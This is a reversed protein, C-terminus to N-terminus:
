IKSMRTAADLHLVTGNLYGNGIVEMCLSAFEEGKGLRTPFVAQSELQKLTKSPLKTAMPTAFLSPAIGVVRIGDRSLDRAMPLALSAVGAKSSAYATQGTQGQNYSNSSVLIIVGKDEEDAPLSKEQLVIASAVQASVNFTGTLNVDLIQRFADLSFVSGDRNVIKGAIGFGACNIVGGIRKKPWHKQAREIIAKIAEEDRVDAQAFFLNPKFRKVLEEGVEENVDLVAVLAGKEVLSQVCALGLGSSGGTVFIIKDQVRM